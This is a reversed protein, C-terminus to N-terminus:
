EVRPGVTRLRVPPTYLSNRMDAIVIATPPVSTLVTESLTAERLLLDHFRVRPLAADSDRDPAALDHIRIM